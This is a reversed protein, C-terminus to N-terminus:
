IAVDRRERHQLLSGQEVPVRKIQFGYPFHSIRRPKIESNITILM